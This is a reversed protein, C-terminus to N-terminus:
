EGKSSEKSALIEKLERLSIVAVVVGCHVLAEGGLNEGRAASLGGLDERLLSRERSAKEAPARERVMIEASAGRSAVRGNMAKKVELPAM